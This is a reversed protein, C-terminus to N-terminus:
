MFAIYNFFTSSYFGGPAKRHQFERWANVAEAGGWPQSEQMNVIKTYKNNWINSEEERSYHFKVKMEIGEFGAHCTDLLTLVGVWWSLSYVGTKALEIYGYLRFEMYILCIVKVGPLFNEISYLSSWRQLPYLMNFYLFQHIDGMLCILPVPCPICLCSLQNSRASWILSISKFRFRQAM